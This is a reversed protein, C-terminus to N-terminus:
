ISSIAARRSSPVAPGAISATGTALKRSFRIATAPMYRYEMAVWTLPLRSKLRAVRESDAPDTFLPKEVLVPLPRIEAIEQLQDIHLDNPSAIVVCDIEPEALLDRISEAPRAEPALRLAEGRMAADPEFIARVRAQPVLNINRIHEQGMMGCGIIAYRITRGSVSGENM